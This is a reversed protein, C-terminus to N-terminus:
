LHRRVETAFGAIFDVVVGSLVYCFYAMVVWWFVNYDAAAVSEPISPPLM